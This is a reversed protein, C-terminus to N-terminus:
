VADSNYSEDPKVVGDNEEGDAEEDQDEEFDNAGNKDVNELEEHTQSNKKAPSDATTNSGQSSSKLGNLLARKKTSPHEEAEDDDDEDAEQHVRKGVITIDANYEESMSNEHDRSGESVHAVCLQLIILLRCSRYRVEVTSYAKCWAGSSSTRGYVGMEQTGTLRYGRHYNSLIM